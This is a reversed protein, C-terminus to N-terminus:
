AEYNLLRFDDAYLRRLRAKMADDFDVGGSKKHSPNSRPLEKIEQPFLCLAHLVPWRQAMDELKFIHVEPSLGPEGAKDKLFWVQPQFLRTARGLWPLNISGWFENLPMAQAMMSLAVNEPNRKKDPQDPMERLWHYLSRARDYPHRVITVVARARRKLKQALKCHLPLHSHSTIGLLRNLSTGGTKPIHLFLVDGPM